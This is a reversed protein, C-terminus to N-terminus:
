DIYTNLKYGYELLYNYTLKEFERIDKKKLDKLYRGVSSNNIPYKVQEGSPHDYDFKILKALGNNHNLLHKSWNINLFQCIFETTKKPQSILDEYRLEFYSNVYEQKIKKGTSIMKIWGKAGDKPSKYGWKFRDAMQSALVDRGDRIIHIIKLNPWFDFYNKYLPLDRMIKFGWNKIKLSKHIKRVRGLASVLECREHFNELSKKNILFKKIEEKLIKETIGWRLVRNVFHFGSKYIENYRLQNWEKYDLSKKLDLMEIIYQGLNKPVRFHLETGISLELHSDLIVSLLTTGSRGDGAILIPDNM